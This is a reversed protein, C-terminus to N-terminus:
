NIWFNSLNSNMKVKLKTGYVYVKTTLGIM